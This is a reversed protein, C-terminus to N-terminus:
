GELTKQATQLALAAKSASTDFFELAGAVTKAYDANVKAGLANALEQNARGRKYKDNVQKLTSAMQELAKLATPGKDPPISEVQKAVAGVKDNLQKVNALAKQFQKRDFGYKAMQEEFYSDADIKRLNLFPKALRKEEQPRYERSSTTTPIFRFRQFRKSADTRTEKYFEDVEAKFTKFSKIQPADWKLYTALSSAAEDVGAKLDDIPKLLTAVRAALAEFV